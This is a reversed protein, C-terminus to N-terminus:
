LCTTIKQQRWLARLSVGLYPVHCQMKTSNTNGYQVLWTPCCTTTTISKIKWCTTGEAWIHPQDALSDQTCIHLCLICAGLFLFLICCYNRMHWSKPYCYTNNLPFSNPCVVHHYYYSHVPLNARSSHHKGWRTAMDAHSSRQRPSATVSWQSHGM